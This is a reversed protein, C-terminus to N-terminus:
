VFIFVVLTSRLIDLTTVVRGRLVAFVESIGFDRRFDVIKFTKFFDTVLKRLSEKPLFM